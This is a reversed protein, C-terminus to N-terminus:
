LEVRGGRPNDFLKERLCLFNKYDHSLNDMIKKYRKNNKHVTKRAEDVIRKIQEFSLEDKIKRSDSPIRLWCHRCNNNCRHTLDIRGQLPLRPLNNIKTIQLYEQAMNVGHSIFMFCKDYRM